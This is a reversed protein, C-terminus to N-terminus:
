HRRQGCVRKFSREFPCVTFESLPPPRHGIDNGFGQMPVFTVAQTVVALGCEVANGLITGLHRGYPLSECSVMIEDHREKHYHLHNDDRM